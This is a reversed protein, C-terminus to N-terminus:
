EKYVLINIQLYLLILIYLFNWLPSDLVLPVLICLISHVPAHFTTLLTHIYGRCAKIMAEMRRPMSEVLKSITAHPLQGQLYRWLEEQCPFTANGLFCGLVDLSAKNPESRSETCALGAPTSQELEEHIQSFHCSM